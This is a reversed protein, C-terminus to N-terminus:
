AKERVLTSLIIYPHCIEQNCLVDHLETCVSCQLVPALDGGALESFKCSPAYLGVKCLSHFLLHIYTILFMKCDKYLM